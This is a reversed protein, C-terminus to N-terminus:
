KKHFEKLIFRWLKQSWVPGAYDIGIRPTVAVMEKDVIYGRDEFWLGTQKSATKTNLDMTIKFHKTLRGPGVVDRTGRILVGAPHEKKGTVINLMIHIGYVIHVYLNGGEGFMIETRKTRGKSAHSALDERGEYAETETIMSAYEEGDIERVLFKGLLAEAVEPAPRQFFQQPLIKRMKQIYWTTM